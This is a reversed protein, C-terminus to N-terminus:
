GSHGFESLLWKLVDARNEETVERLVVNDHARVLDLFETRRPKIVGVIPIEGSIRELVARQFLRSRSELFGLEDMVIIERNKSGSLIEAGHIDFIREMNDAPLIRDGGSRAILYKEGNRPERGYPSLYLRREGIGCNDWWTMFGGASLGSQSLFSRIITTKGVRTNGTLFYHM